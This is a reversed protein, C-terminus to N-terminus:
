LVSFILSSRKRNTPGNLYFNVLATALSADGLARHEVAQDIGNTITQTSGNGTYLYTSFVDDVYLQSEAANGASSQLAKALM